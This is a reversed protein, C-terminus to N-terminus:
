INGGKNLCMGNIWNLTHTVLDKFLLWKVILTTTSSALLSALVSIENDLKKNCCKNQSIIDCM